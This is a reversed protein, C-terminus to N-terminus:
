KWRMIEELKEMFDKVQLFVEEDLRPTFELQGNRKYAEILRYLTQPHIKTAKRIKRVSLGSKYLLIGIEEKDPIIASVNGNIGQVLSRIQTINCGFLNALTDIIEYIIVSQNYKELLYSIFMYFDIEILRDQEPYSLPKLNYM